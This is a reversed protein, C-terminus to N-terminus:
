IPGMWSPQLPEKKWDKVWVIDGPQHAHAWNGMPIPIRELVEWSIQHLTKGLAQLHQSMDLNGIQRLDGRFRNVIPPPRGYFIEFPSYSSPRPTCRARLLALPLMDICTITNRQLTQSLYNQPDPEHARSERFESAQISYPAEM